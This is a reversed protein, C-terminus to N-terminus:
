KVVSGLGLDCVYGLIGTPLSFTTVILARHNLGGAAKMWNVFVWLKAAGRSCSSQAEAAPLESSANNRDLLM